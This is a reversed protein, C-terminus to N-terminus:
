CEASRFAGAVRSREVSSLRNEVDARDFQRAGQLAAGRSPKSRHTMADHRARTDKVLRLVHEQAVTIAGEFRGSHSYHCHQQTSVRERQM